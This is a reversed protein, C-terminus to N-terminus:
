PGAVIKTIQTKLAAVGPTVPASLRQLNGALPAPPVGIVAFVFM